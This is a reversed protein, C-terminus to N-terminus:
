YAVIININDIYNTDTPAGITVDGTITHTEGTSTYSRANIGIATPTYAGFAVIAPGADGIPGTGGVGDNDNLVYAVLDATQVTGAMSRTGAAFHAGGDIGFAHPLSATCAVVATGLAVGTATAGQNGFAGTFTSALDYTCTANYSLTVTKATPTVVAGANFAAAALALSAATIIIKKM